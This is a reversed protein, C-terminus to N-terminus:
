FWTWPKWWEQDSTQVPRAPPATALPAKAGGTMAFENPTIWQVSLGPATTLPRGTRRTLIQLENRALSALDNEGLREHVAALNHWTQPLPCSQVSQQLVRKADIWQECGALLVGLENAALHNQPDIALAAEYYVMARASGQAGPTHLKGLGFLALSAARCDGAAAAFQVRAFSYYQQMAAIATLSDLDADQLVPTRHGIVLTKLHLSAELRASQPQFDDAEELARLAAALSETHRKGGLAVDRAEAVSRLVQMMEARASYVAGREALAFAHQVATTARTEVAALARGVDSSSNPSKWAPVSPGPIAEHSSPTTLVSRSFNSPSREPTATDTAANTLSTWPSALDPSHWAGPAPATLPQSEAENGFERQNFRTESLDTREAARFAPEVAPLRALEKGEGDQWQAAQPPYAESVMREDTPLPPPAFRVSVPMIDAPVDLLRPPASAREGAAEM